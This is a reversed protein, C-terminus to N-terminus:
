SESTNISYKKILKSILLDNNVVNSTFQNYFNGLEGRVAMLLFLICYFGCYESLGQIKKQNWTFKKDLSKMYTGLKYFSPHFGYPDFFRAHKNKDIFIALWHEGPESRNQTNIIICVPYDNFKYPLEDRAYVGHNCKRTYSDNELIYELTNEYM